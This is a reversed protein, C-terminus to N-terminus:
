RAAKTPRSRRRQWAIGLVDIENDVQQMQEYLWDRVVRKERIMEAITEKSGKPAVFEPRSM